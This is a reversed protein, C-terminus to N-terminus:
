SCVFNEIFYKESVCLLVVVKPAALACLKTFFIVHGNWHDIAVIFIYWTVNENYWIKGCMLCLADIRQPIFFSVTLNNMQFKYPIM